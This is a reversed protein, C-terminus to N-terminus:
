GDCFVKKSKKKFLLFANKSKKLVSLKTHEFFFFIGMLDFNVLIIMRTPYKTRIINPIGPVCV